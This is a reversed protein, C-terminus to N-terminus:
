KRNMAISKSVITQLLQVQALKRARVYSTLVKVFISKSVKACMVTLTFTKDVHSVAINIEMYDEVMNKKGFRM